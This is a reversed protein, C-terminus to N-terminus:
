LRVALLVRVVTIADDRELGGLEVNWGPDLLFPGVFERNALKDLLVAVLGEFEVGAADVLERRLTSAPEPLLAADKPVFLLTPGGREDAV